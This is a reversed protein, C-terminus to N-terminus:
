RRFYVVNDFFALEYGRFRVIHIECCINVKEDIETHCEFNYGFRYRYTLLRNPKTM